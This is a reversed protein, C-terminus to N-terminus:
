EDRLAALPDAQAARHAPIWAALLATGLLLAAAAAYTAPDLTSLEFLLGALLRTALLAGALGLALGWLTPRMAGGVVRVVVNATTAGLARRLGIERTREAVITATVAYLGVAALLLGLAGFATFLLSRFRPAGVADDFRQQMTRAGFIALEPDLEAVVSRLPALLTNPDSGARLLLYAGRWDAQRFPVYYAPEIPAHSGSYRVNGVVGVIEMWVNDPREPGGTKIRSGIPDRGPFYRAAFAENIVVVPPAGVRDSPEFHRGRMLPVGLTEFYGRDVFLIPVAPEGVDGRPTQGEVQFSDTITLQNPPLSTGIGAALVGPLAASREILQEYFAVTAIPDDYRATALDLGVTLIQEPATVGREVHQLKDLSRLLLGTAVLVIFCLAVEVGVLGRRLRSSEPTATSSASPRLAGFTDMHMAQRAPVLGFGIACATAIIANFALVTGDISALALRPVEVPAVGILVSLALGGLVAGIAVGMGALLVGEALLQRLLHGSSAGQATRVAIERRRSAGRSLLLNSVNVVAILLVLGTAVFLAYLTARSSGVFQDKLPRSALTIGANHAPHARALSDAIASLQAQAQEASVSPALRGIGYLYYPGRRTAPTAPHRIWLAVDGSLGSAERLPFEFEPPMVGVIPRPTGNLVMTKGIVDRAGGYRRQWFGYSLVVESPNGAVDDDTVFTRGLLPAVGLVQLLGGSGYIGRIQEAEGDGTLTLQNDTYVAAPALSTLQPAIDQWDAVSLTSREGPQDRHEFHFAILQQPDAYPLPALLVANVVGFMATNAGIGLALTTVAAIFYGPRRLLARWAFALDRWLGDLM